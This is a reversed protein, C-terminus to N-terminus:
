KVLLIVKVDNTVYEPAVYGILEVNNAVLRVVDAETTIVKPAHGKGTFMLRAWYARLVVGTKKLIKQNFEKKTNSTEPLDIPYVRGLNELSNIQQLFIRTAVERPLSATTNKANIIVAVDAEARISLAMLCGLVLGGLVWALHCHKILRNPHTM